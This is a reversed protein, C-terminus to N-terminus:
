FKARLEVVKGWIRIPLEEIQQNTYVMPAYKPNTSFLTIGESTRVIRKCTADSGNIMVIATEGTEITEQIRVIVVDGDSMKPEMSDGHIRLAAYEGTAAMEQSIEEYDEIDTIAEIPIGAAVNGYVPVRVGRKQVAEAFSPDRAMRVALSAAHSVPEESFYSVPVGFHDAIKQLTTDRPVSGRKWKVALANSFGLDVCVATPSTGKQNCLSVLKTWFM